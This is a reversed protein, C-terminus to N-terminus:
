TMLPALCRLGAAALASISRVPQAAGRLGGQRARPVDRQPRPVGVRQRGAGLDLQRRCADAEDARDLHLLVFFRVVANHTAGLPVLETLENARDSLELAQALHGTRAAVEAEGILSMTVAEAAGIQEAAVRASRFGRIAVDFHELYKAAHAHVTALGWSWAPDTLEPRPNAYAARTRSIM